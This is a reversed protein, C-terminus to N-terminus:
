QIRSWVQAVRYSPFDIGGSLFEFIQNSRSRTVLYIPVITSLIRRCSCLFESLISIIRKGSALIHPQYTRGIHQLLLFLCKLRQAGIIQFDGSDLRHLFHGPVQPVICCSAPLSLQVPCHTTPKFRDFFNGFHSHIVQFADDLGNNRLDTIARCLADVTPDFGDFDM